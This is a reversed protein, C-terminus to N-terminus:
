EFLSCVQVTLEPRKVKLRELVPDSIEIAGRLQLLTLQPFAKKQSIWRAEVPGFTINSREYLTLNELRTLRELAKLGMALSFPHVPSSAKSTIISTEEEEEEQEEASPTTSAQSSSSSSSEELDSSINNNHSLAEDEEQEHTKSPRIRQLQQPVAESADDHRDSSSASSSMSEDADMASLPLSTGSPSNVSQFGAEIAASLNPAPSDAPAGIIFAGDPMWSAAAGEQYPDGLNISCNLAPSNYIHLSRLDRLRRLQRFMAHYDSKVSEEEHSWFKQANTSRQRLEDEDEDDRDHQTGQQRQQQQQRHHISSLTDMQDDHPPGNSHVKPQYQAQYHEQDELIHSLDNDSAEQNHLADNSGGGDEPLRTFLVRPHFTFELRRLKTCAWTASGRFCDASVLDCSLFELERLHPCGEVLARIGRATIRNCYNIKVSDLGGGWVGLSSSTSLSSALTELGSDEINTFQLNLSRLSKNRFFRFLGQFETNAIGLCFLLNLEELHKFPVEHEQDRRNAMLMNMDADLTEPGGMSAEPKAWELFERFTIVENRSINLSKLKPCAESIAALAEDGVESDVLELHRIGYAAECIRLMTEMGRGTNTIFPLRLYRLRSLNSCQELSTLFTPPARGYLMTRDVLITRLNPMALLLVNLRSPNSECETLVLTHVFNGYKLLQDLLAQYHPDAWTECDLELERWVAERSFLSWTKCVLSTAVLDVPELVQCSFILHIIEPICLPQLTSM